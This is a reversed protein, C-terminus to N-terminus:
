RHRKTHVECYLENLYQIIESIVRKNLYHHHHHCKMSMHSMLSYYIRDFEYVLNMWYSYSHCMYDDYEYMLHTLEHMLDDISNCNHYSLM